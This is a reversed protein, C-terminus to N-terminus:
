ARVIEYGSKIFKISDNENLIHVDANHDILTLTYELEDFSIAHCESIHSHIFIKNIINNEVYYNYDDTILQISFIEGDCQSTKYTLNLDIFKIDVINNDTNEPMDLEYITITRNNTTTNDTMLIMWPIDDSIRDKICGIYEKDCIVDAFIKTNHSTMYKKGNIYKRVTTNTILSDSMYKSFFLSRFTPEIILYIKSCYIQCISIHYMAKYSYQILANQIADNFTGDVYKASLDYLYMSLFISGAGIILNSINFNM